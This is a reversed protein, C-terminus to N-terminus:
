RHVLRRGHARLTSAVPRLDYPERVIPQSDYDPAIGAAFPGLNLCRGAIILRRQWPQSPAVKTPDKLPLLRLTAPAPKVILEARPPVM